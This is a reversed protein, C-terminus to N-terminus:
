QGLGRGDRCGASVRRLCNGPADPKGNDALRLAHGGAFRGQHDFRDARVVGSAIRLAQRHLEGPHLLIGENEEAASAMEEVVRQRVVGNEGLRRQRPAAAIQVELVEAAVLGVVPEGIEVNGVEVLRRERRAGPVDDAQQGTDATAAIEQL